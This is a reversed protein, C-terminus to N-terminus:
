DLCTSLGPETWLDLADLSSILLAPDRDDLLAQEVVHSVVIQQFAQPNGPVERRALWIWRNKVALISRGPLFGKIQAWQNGMASQKALLTMDEEPTWDGKTLEPDMHGMWRERCQKSNRNDLRKAVLRWQDLGLEAVATALLIDEDATWKKKPTGGVHRRTSSHERRRWQNIHSSLFQDWESSSKSHIPIFERSPAFGVRPAPATMFTATGFM